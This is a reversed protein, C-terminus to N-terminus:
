GNEDPPHTGPDGCQDQAAGVPPLASALVLRFGARHWSVVTDAKVIILTGAWGSWWRRLAVWLLRDINRLLPRPRKRNLVVLQQRLAAAELGLRHRSVLYARVYAIAVLILGIMVLSGIRCRRAATRLTNMGCRFRSKIVSLNTLSRPTYHSGSRRREPSPQFIMSGAPVVAPTLDKEIKRDLAALLDPLSAASKLAAAAKPTLKQGTTKQLWEARKAPTARLLGELNITVLAGRKAKKPSTIAIAPGAALELTFGM